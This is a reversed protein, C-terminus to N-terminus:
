GFRLLSALSFPEEKSLTSKEHESVKDAHQKLPEEKSPASKEHESIEHAYQEATNKHFLRFFFGEKQEVPKAEYYNYSRMREHYVGGAMFFRCSDDDCEDPAAGLYGIFTGTGNPM